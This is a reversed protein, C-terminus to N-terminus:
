AIMKEFQGRNMMVIKGGTYVKMPWKLSDLSVVPEPYCRCNFIEGAHYHGYIHKEGALQEPSPPDTWKVLVGDMIEHSHRVRSDKSTRWVYWDINLAESRVRTIATSTKSIETRAIRQIKSDLMDPVRSKLDNMVDDARRGAVTEKMVHNVVDEALDLPLTKILEANHAILDRVRVGNVGQLEKFLMRYILRSKTGRVAASRWSQANSVFLATVMKSAAASAWKTFAETHMVYTLYRTMEDASTLRSLGRELLAGVKKLAQQYEVEIRNAPEWNPKKPM